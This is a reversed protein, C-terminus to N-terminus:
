QSRNLRFRRCHPSPSQMKFAHRFYELRPGNVSIFWQILAIIVKGKIEKKLLVLRKGNEAWTKRDECSHFRNTRKVAQDEPKALSHWLPQGRLGMGPANAKVGVTSEDTQKCM